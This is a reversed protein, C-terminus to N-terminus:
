IQDIIEDAEEYLEKYKSINKFFSFTKGTRIILPILINETVTLEPFINTIQFSRLLKLKVLKHPPLGTIDIGKFYVKGGSPKFKGSIVNYFTTKGAGNPGILATIGGKKVQLNIGNLVRFKGFSHQLNEVKLIIDQNSLNM